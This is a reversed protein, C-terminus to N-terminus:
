FNWQAGVSAQEPTLAPLVLAGHHRELASPPKEPAPRVAQYLLFVVAAGACVGAAAFSALSAIELSRGESVFNNYRNATVAFPIPKGTIDRYDILNDLDDERSHAALGLVAGATAFALM